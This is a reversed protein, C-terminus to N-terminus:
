RMDVEKFLEKLWTCEAKYFRACLEQGVCTM